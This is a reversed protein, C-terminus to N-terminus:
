RNDPALETTRDSKATSLYALLVGLEFLLWIPVAMLTQSIVDPPTLLAGIIFAGVIVYARQDHLTRYEVLGSKVLLLTFIPVEFVAGFAILMRIVFDLYHGIDTMVAVGQPAATVMFGFIVPFVAFYAFALGLYFLLTSALLLPFFLRKEARRLGPAVFAWAQYLLFPVALLVAALFALKFPILFPSAVEIAIMQSGAPMYRLLPDALQAYIENAYYALGAFVLLVFLVSKLVRNRLELLHGLWSMRASDGSFDGDAM